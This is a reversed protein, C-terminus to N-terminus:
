VGVIRADVAFIGVREDELFALDNFYCDVVVIGATMGKMQVSVCELGDKAAIFVGSVVVRIVM